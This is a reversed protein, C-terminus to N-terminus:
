GGLEEEIEKRLESAIHWSVYTFLGLLAFLGAMRIYKEMTV